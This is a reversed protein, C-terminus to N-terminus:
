GVIRFLDKYEYLPLKTKGDDYIVVTIKSNLHIRSTSLTCLMCRLLSAPADQADDFRTIGSGMLPLVIDNRAYVRGIEKWMEMLTQEYQAMTTHAEWNENLATMAVMLYTTEQGNKAKPAYPIASGLPFRYSGGNARLGRREADATVAKQIEDANGHHLVLKGHLSSKSIVVDDAATSFTTDMPIVRWGPTQFIDGSKVTVTNRGVQVTISNKYKRGIVTWIVLVWFAYILLVLCLYAGIRYLWHVKSLSLVTSVSVGLITFVTAIGGVIAFALTLSDKLRKTM